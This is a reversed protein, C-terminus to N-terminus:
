KPQHGPVHTLSRKNGLLPLVEIAQPTATLTEISFHDFYAKSESTAWLGLAAYAAPVTPAEATFLKKPPEGVSVIVVDGRAEVALDIWTNLAAVPEPESKVIREKGGVVSVAEVTGASANARVIWHNADDVYRFVVGCAATAQGAASAELSASEVKCRTKAKLDRARQEKAILLAPGKGPDGEQNALARGGTAETHEELGWEGSMAAGRAELGLEGLKKDDLFTWNENKKAGGGRESILTAAFIAAGLVVIGAIWRKFAASLSPKVQKV